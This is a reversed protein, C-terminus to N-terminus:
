RPVISDSSDSLRLGGNGSLDDDESFDELLPAGAEADRLADAAMNDVDQPLEKM